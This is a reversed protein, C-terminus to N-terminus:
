PQPLWPLAIMTVGDGLNSIVSSTWLKWYNAGLKVKSAQKPEDTEVTDDNVQPVTDSMPRGTM